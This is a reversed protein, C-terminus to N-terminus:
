SRELVLSSMLVRILCLKSPHAVLKRRFNPASPLFILELISRQFIIWHLLPVAFSGIRTLGIHQTALSSTRGWVLGSTLRGLHILLSLPM